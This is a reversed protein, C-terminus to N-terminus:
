PPVCTPGSHHATECDTGGVCKEAGGPLPCTFPDGEMSCCTFQSFNFAPLLGTLQPNLQLNRSTLQKLRLMEQPISGTLQNSYLDLKKLGTLQGIASPIPGTLQNTNM